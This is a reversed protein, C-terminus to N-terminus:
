KVRHILPQGESQVILCPLIRISVILLEYVM